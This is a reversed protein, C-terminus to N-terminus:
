EGGKDKNFSDYLSNSYDKGVDGEMQSNLMAEIEAIEAELEPSSVGAAELEAVVSQLEDLQQMSGLAQDTIGTYNNLLETANAMDGSLYRLGELNELNEIAQNLSSDNVGADILGQLGEVIQGVSQRAGFEAFAAGILAASALLMGYILPDGSFPLSIEEGGLDPNVMEFVCSGDDETAEPYYNTATSNTCGPISIPEDYVCSGDDVTAEPYYNTATSNTCGPISIPEDYVCSGDDVTAEPYYNTATSNTCGYILEDYVCSGDDVTAEPYYNTATSNTCGYVDVICSGDDVTAEPNYNIASSDMCGPQQAYVCSGDDVTAGPYYNTATSNTCGYVPEEVIDYSDYLESIEESSLARNWIAVEDIKGNFPQRDSDFDHAGIMLPASSTSIIGTASCTKDLVDDIYIKINSGDYTALLLHWEDLNLATDSSCSTVDEGLSLSFRPKKTDLIVFSFANDDSGSSFWRAVLIQNEGETVDDINFWGSVSINSVDFVGGGDIEVYNDIGDFELATGNVGSVWQPGNVLTGDNGNGSSDYAIEGSGEDFKWHAIPYLNNALSNKFAYVKDDESGAGIYEGYASVAVSRVYGGTSYSWLPTSSDKDFLYIKNDESGVTIYEGDASVAVSKVNNGTTYSWLPTSSGKNFLTVKYGGGGIVIYEGDASIAVTRLSDDTTYSWLPTSSDKDFVYVKADDSGAVIYEGDASIAVSRVYDGTTYNWLPTSSDKDFLYVKDDMSGAVIYEGDASIAVSEVYTETSYSWLPTSSDKDFLYVKNDYSGAVIYKGDASITVSHVWNGTTYSWLPTSSDKHFFNIYADDSGTVIYKGDASIAVSQVDSGTRYSWLPTSSDKDFLYVEDDTSGAVIYEGDSSIAVSLVDGGTELSWEPDIGDAEEIDLYFITNDSWAGDDDKARLEIYHYGASLDDISFNGSSSLFGDINSSWSYEVIYGDSDSFNTYFYVRDGYDAPNPSVNYNTLNPSNNPAIDDLLYFNMISSALSGSSDTAVVKWYYTTDSDLGAPVYYLEPIDNAVLTTPNTSTDLYVDFTLSSRDDSGAFWILQPSSVENGSRPSVPLLFDESAEINEFYHFNDSSSSGSASLYRGNASLDLNFSGGGHYLDTDAMTWLPTNSSIDWFIVMEYGYGSVAVYKGDESIHVDLCNGIEYTWLPTGSDKDFVYVVETTAVVMYEGDVSIDVKRVNGDSEYDWIPSNSDKSFFYITEDDDGTIIYEGDASIKVAYVEDGAEFEWLSNNNSDLLYVYEGSTVAIHKGDASISIDRIEGDFSDRTWLPTSSDKSWFNVYGDNHGAVVFKGDASIDITRFSGQEANYRWLYSSSTKSFLYIKEYNDVAIYSGDASIALEVIDYSPESSKWLPVNSDKAFLYVGDGGMVTYEGDASVESIAQGFQYSWWWKKYLIKVDSTSTGSSDKAVVKWYHYTHVELNEPQYYSTTLNSAVKSLSSSNTGLYVDFVLNSEDDSNWFWRLTDDPHLKEEHIPSYLIVSLSSSANNNFVYVKDDEGTASIIDGDKSIEVSVFSSGGTNTYNWLPNGSNKNFIFLKGEEQGALIFQGSASISVSTVDAGTDYSWLPTSSDKDFLYVKDDDCGAIIYEGNASIALTTANGDIEKKWEYSSSDRNWLRIEPNQYEDYEEGGWISAVVYEGDSSLATSIFDNDHSSTRWKSEDGGNLERNVKGLDFFYLDEGLAVSLSMGNDALSLSELEPGGSAFECKWVYKKSDWTDDDTNFYYIRNAENAAVVYNGDATIDVFIVNSGTDYEWVPTSSNRHWFIIDDNNSGAVISWGDASIAVSNVDKGTDYSWLPTSSDKDFLYVHDDMSGVVIYKGDQSTATTLGGGDMTYNWLLESEEEMEYSDYLESIEASSLARNWIAVEDMTGNFYAYKTPGDYDIAVGLYMPREDTFPNAPGSIDTSSNVLIGDIGLSFNQGYDRLVVVHYLRESEYSTSVVTTSEDGGNGRFSARLTGDDHLTIYIGRNQYNANGDGMQVLKQNVVKETKFFFSFSWNSNLLFELDDLVGLDVYDNTGDFKLATGNIGDVWEIDGYLTGNNNNGSSDYAIDGSGEDFKWHAVPDDSEEEIDLYFTTNDSWDGDDDKARLSISHSGASLDDTSFNGSSSLLGDISSTWSYDVIYGDSDSFNSYFYVRQGPEAPNPSVNYDTLEPVDNGLIEWIWSDPDGENGSPDTAKVQFQHYTGRSLGTYTKPSSCSAWSGYNLKCKFTVDDEDAEFYFTANTYDSPNPPGSTINTIPSTTDLVTFNMIRSTASGSPDTAVVKWYYKKSETLGTVSHTYNTIDDAILAASNNTAVDNYIFSLYVDFTLNTIDDSGPFWRLTTDNLTTSNSRPGYPIVSPRSVPDNRFLYVKGKGDNNNYTGLAFYEGDASISAHTIAYDFECSWLPTSSDKNFLYVEHYAGAVIFEGDASISVRASNDGDTYEWLPTSSDKDFLYVKDDKSGAVIYKGDASIAVSSMEDDHQYIWLPTASDKSFLVVDRSTDLAVSVIYEGDSSIAIRAACGGACNAAYTYNWLPTGSDKDFIHLKRKNLTCQSCDYSVADIAAITEGDASIVVMNNWGVGADASWLPSSSNKHFLYIEGDSDAIVLYEGNSSISVSVVCAGAEYSWLPTSSDKDFLYVKNENSCSGAAIYEGDASIAATVFSSNGVYTWLPTSSDKHFLYVRDNRSGAVIYEGDSSIFLSQPQEFGESVEYSWEPSKRVDVWSSEDDSWVGDNDKVRFTISHNGFSLDTTSFSASTSLDGDISSIWKYESITGDSDSGSGLFSVSSDLEAIQPSISDISAVPPYSTLVIIQGEYSDDYQCSYNYTGVTDFTYSWSNGPLISGSEFEDDDEKVTHISSDDNTWVVTAGKIITLEAPDYDDDISVCFINGYSTVTFNMVSSTVTGDGDTAVVKWYYKTDIDLCQLNYYFTTIDDAVKTSPVSDTDLYVDFTLNSRDDSGAFWDLQPNTDTNSGSRPGYAFLSPRSIISNKFAYVNDNESGAVIYKGDASIAVSRVNGEGTTYSGNTYSWVPTGSDRHYFYVTKDIGGGVIYEGDASIAVSYVSYGQSHNWLPTSSDKDFLYLRNDDSGAVIYEGDASIAVTDVNDGTAYNWLPQSSDKNFFLVNNNESGAVIYEGDASIAVSVMHYTTTHSWLPVNSDKNYFYIKYDLSGAVIYQGDASISVSKIGDGASSSTWLPTNSDKHFLYVKSWGSAVIYNGDASIDVAYGISTSSYTWIPTSSDKDFLHFKGNLGNSVIYEGDASIAVSHLTNGTNYSWLPTSSDKDFLYVKYDDSGVVMYEGDSSVAVTTVENGTEYSWEPTMPVTFTMVSSTNNGSPDTAIVKWYYKIGMALNSPAYSLASTDNAVLSMSSTSTGLYVDFTLNSRDDSGAFWRLVPTEVESGSRPGYPIVSPREALSNKFAYVSDDNSGTAVYKGDASIAVTNVWDGTSYSWLPTSSNKNFLYVKDDKSGAVIYEGDESITVSRVDDNTTYTWYPSSSDKDFLYVRDDGSGAVIYEGDASIDVSVVVVNGTYYSWLPTSSDKDFLYVKNDWSGATIYEGDASIAVSPVDNGTSYSWLPTNSDKDFLYVKNDRSGAAIYEGDASIAVSQVDGSTTYNWLPTSNDKNFFYIKKDVSGAIIYDGDASIALSLVDNGTSYSWLPTSSDKNFFYVKDDGSGAVIYQGDSSVAVSYMNGGSATYKWIPTSSNKDFLYVKNDDSGVVIYEGDASTAVARVNDGTEYSWEPDIAEAEESVFILAVGLLLLCAVPLKVFSVSM